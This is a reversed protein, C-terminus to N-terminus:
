VRAHCRVEAVFWVDYATSAALGDAVTHTTETDAALVQISGSALAADGNGDQGNVVQAVSPSSVGQALVTYWVLGPESLSVNLTVATDTVGAVGPFAPSFEAPTADPATTVSASAVTPVVNPPTATDQAVVHVAYATSAVIRPSSAGAASILSTVLSNAAAVAGTGATIPAGGAADTGALVQAVSPAATAAALVVYAYTGPENLQLALTFSSDTVSTTAPYGAVFEPPTADALTTVAVMVPSVQVNPTTLADEAVVWVNYTTAADLGTVAASANTSAAAVVFSADALAAAGAGDVGQRVQTATPTNGGSPVVVFYVKGRESLQAVIGFGSDTLATVSPAQVWTPPTADALTAVDVKAASAMVNPTGEDDAGVVWVDFATSSALDTVSALVTSGAAPVAGSGSQVAASGAGDTGAQVQAPTPAAAGDVLVVWWWTGPEDLQANITLRSDGVNTLAPFGSLFAPATTDGLTTVQVKVGLQRNPLLASDQAVVWVDYLTAAAVGTTVAFTTVTDATGFATGNALAQTGAGDTGAVIDTSSPSTAGNPLVVFWVGGDEDTSTELTFASDTISDSPVRPYGATNVPPTSDVLTTVTLELPTTGRNPTPEDDQAVVYVKYATSSTLGTSVLTSSVSSSVSASGFGSAVGATGDGDTGSVVEPTSPVAAAAPVVVYFYGGPESLAVGISFSFDAINSIAASEIAPPTADAGSEFFVLTPFTPSNATGDIALVWAEYRHTHTAGCLSFFCRAGSGSGSGSGSGCPWVDCLSPPEVRFLFSVVRM